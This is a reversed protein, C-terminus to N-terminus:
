QWFIILDEAYHILNPCHKLLLGDKVSLMIFWSMVFAGAFSAIALIYRQPHKEDNGTGRFICIFAGMLILPTIDVVYRQNVGGMCFDMWGIILALAFCLIIFANRQLKTTSCTFHKGHRQIASPILLTGFLLAPITMLGVTDAVYTYKSYNFLGSYNPEIFPFAGKPRPVLFFYHYLMPPLGGLYLVNANVNSVTLQYTAGFDFPSGFRANNYWMIAIGGAILPVFFVAAQAIRYSLKVKKDMLIGLFFPILVASSLAVSPRAGVAAALSAGCIFLMIFRVAKNKQSCAGLGMWLGFFLYALGCALQLTYTDSFNMCFYFGACSAAAPLSLLLLLLNTRPALLKVAALLTQCMFFIGLIGFFGTVMPRDPLKGTLAYYPIHFTIVPTVGFYSYYHGDKYALDWFYSVNKDDRETRSYPDDMNLLSQDPEIELYTQDRQFADFTAAYPDGIPPNEKSYEFGRSQPCFTIAIFLTCALTFIKIITQNTNNKALSKSRSIATIIIIASIFLVFFTIARSGFSNSFFSHQFKNFVGEIDKNSESLYPATFMVASFTCLLVMAEVLVMHLPKSTQYTVKYLKFTLIAQILIVISLVIMFRLLSFSFPIASFAKVSFVTVPNNVDSFGIKLSKIEGYPIFSLSIPNGTASDYVQMATDYDTTVNDDKVGLSVCVPSSADNREQEIDIVLARCYDPVNDIFIDSNSSIGITDDNYVASGSTPLLSLDLTESKRKTDFSKFNFIIIEVSMVAFAAVAARKLFSALQKKSTFEKILFAAFPLVSTITIAVPSIMNGDNSMFFQSLANLLLLVCWELIFLKFLKQLKQKKIKEDTKMKTMITNASLFSLIFLLLPIIATVAISM